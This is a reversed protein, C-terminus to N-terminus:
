NLSHFQIVNNLTLTNVNIFKQVSLKQLNELGAIKTVKGSKTGIVYICEEHEDFDVVDIPLTIKKPSAKECFEMKFGRDFSTIILILSLAITAHGNTYPESVLENNV